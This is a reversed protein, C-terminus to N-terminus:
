CTSHILAGVSTTAALENYREVAEDTQLTHVDIAHENLLELTEPHIRLRKHVGMSLVVVTAGQDILEQVDAPQIGPEHQTGTNRWDWEHAGGPFLVADKFSRGDEIELRGWILHTIKPSKAGM